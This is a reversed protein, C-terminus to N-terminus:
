PLITGDVIDRTIVVNEEPMIFIYEWYDSDSHRMETKVGNAYFILDVDMLPHTRIVVPKGAM